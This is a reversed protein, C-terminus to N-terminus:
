EKGKLEGRVILRHSYDPLTCTQLSIINKGKKPRLISVTDPSIVRKEFVEYTYRTGDADTLFIKDGEKLENLDWFVLNSKTGPYGVRHGAIYVNAVDQWPFGTGRVHVVGDHLAKEYGSEPADYVPVGDVRDLAPVTLELRKSEPSKTRPGRVAEVIREPISRQFKKELEESIRGHVRDPSEASAPSGGALLSYGLLGLGAFLFVAAVLAVLRRRRYKASWRKMTRSRRERDSVITSLLVKLGM